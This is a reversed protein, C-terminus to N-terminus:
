VNSVYIFVEVATYLHIDRENTLGIRLLEINFLIQMQISAQGIPGSLARWFDELSKSCIQFSEDKM